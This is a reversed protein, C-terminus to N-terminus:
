GAKGQKTQQIEGGGGGGGQRELEAAGFDDQQVILGIDSRCSGHDSRVYDCLVPLM